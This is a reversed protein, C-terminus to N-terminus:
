LFAADVGGFLPRHNPTGLVLKQYQETVNQLRGRRM